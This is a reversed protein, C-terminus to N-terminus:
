AVIGSQGVAAVEGAKPLNGGVVVRVAREPKRL